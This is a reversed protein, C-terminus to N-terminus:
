RSAGLYTARRPTPVEGRALQGEVQALVHRRFEGTTRWTYTTRHPQWTVAEVTWEDSGLAQLGARPIDWFLRLILRPVLGLLWLAGDFIGGAARPPATGPGAGVVPDPALWPDPGGRDPLKMRYAYLEWDRGDPDTLRSSPRFVSM